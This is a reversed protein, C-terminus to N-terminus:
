RVESAMPKQIQKLANYGYRSGELRYEADRLAVSTMSLVEARLLARITRILSNAVLGEAQVVPTCDPLKM